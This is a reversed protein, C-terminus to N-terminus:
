RLKFSKHIIWRKGPKKLISINDLKISFSPTERSAFEYIKNFKKEIEGVALTSHFHINKREFRDWTIWGLRSLHKVLDAYLKKMELSPKVEIFVVKDGFHSIGELELNTKRKIKCFKDLTKELQSIQNKNLLFNFGKLTIHPDVSYSVDPIKFVHAIKGALQKHYRKAEGKILYVVVYKGGKTNGAM